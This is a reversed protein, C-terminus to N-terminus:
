DFTVAEENKFDMIQKEDKQPTDKGLEKQRLIQLETEKKIYAGRSM